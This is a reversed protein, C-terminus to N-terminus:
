VNPLVEPVYGLLQAAQRLDALEKKRQADYRQLTRVDLGFMKVQDERKIVGKLDEREKLWDIFNYYTKQRYDKPENSELISNSSLDKKTDYAELDIPFDKPLNPFRGHFNAKAAGLNMEKKGHIYLLKKQKRGFYRFYGRTLGDAYIHVLGRTRVIAFYKNLDHFTPTCILIKLKKKRIRKFKKKLSIMIESSWNAGLDDGEDWHIVSEDPLNDVALEFQAATFVIRSLNYTHDLYLADEMACTTKGDGEYGVYLLILDWNKKVAENLDDLVEKRYGDISYKCPLPNGNVDETVVPM